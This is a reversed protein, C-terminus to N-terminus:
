EEYKEVEALGSVLFKKQTPIEECLFRTRRLEGRKFIRKGLRFKEDKKLQELLVLNDDSHDYEKLARYLGVDTCTSAKLNHLSRSLATEVNHPLIKLEIIPILMKRFENKWERGHSKVHRGFHEYTTLHAFEHIATILFAYPNLDGNVTIRHPKGNHKPRFDGHKTARPKTVKFNVHHAFMLEILYPIAEDPVFKKLAEAIKDQSKLM